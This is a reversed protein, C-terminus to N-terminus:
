RSHDLFLRVAGVWNSLAAQLEFIAASWDVTRQRDPDTGAEKLQDIYTRLRFYDREVLTIMQARFASAIQDADERLQRYEGATLPAVMRIGAAPTPGIKGLGYTTPSLDGKLSDPKSDM